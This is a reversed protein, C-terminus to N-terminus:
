PHAPGPEPLGLRSLRTGNRHFFPGSHTNGAQQQCQICKHESLQQPVPVCYPGNQASNLMLMVDGIHDPLIIRAAGPRGPGLGKAPGRLLKVGLVHM